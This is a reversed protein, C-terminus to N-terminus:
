QGTNLITQIKKLLEELNVPKLMVENVGLKRFRDLIPAENWATILFYPVSPLLEKAKKFFEEGDMDPVKYDFLVLDPKEKKIIELAQRSSVTDSVSYNFESLFKKIATLYEQEDDVILIKKGM